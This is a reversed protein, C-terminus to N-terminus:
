NIWMNLKKFSNLAWYEFDRFSPLIMDDMALKRLEIVNLKNPKSALIKEISPISIHVDDLQMLKLNRYIIDMGDNIIGYTGKYDLKKCIEKLVDVDVVESDLQPFAKLLKKQGIGRIGSINDSVDGTIARFLLFNEPLMKFEEIFNKKRYIVKKVPSCVEVTDNILQLFDKDTSVIRISKTNDLNHINTTIYAIVDDAEVNDIQLVTVPLHVCYQIVRKLQVRMSKDMEDQTLEIGSSNKPTFRGTRNSKYNSYISKRRQGGNIGDFIVYCKTPEYHRIEKAISRLFGVVGGVHEGNSNFLSVSSCIRLWMNLGDILLVREDSNAPLLVKKYLESSM